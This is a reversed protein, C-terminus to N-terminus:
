QVEDCSRVISEAEVINAALHINGIDPLKSTVALYLNIRIGTRQTFSKCSLLPRGNEPELSLAKRSVNGGGAYPFEQSEGQQIWSTVKSYQAVM